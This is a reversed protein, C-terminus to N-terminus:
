QLQFQPLKEYAILRPVREFMMKIDSMINNSIQEMDLQSDNTEPRTERHDENKYLGWYEIERDVQRKTYEDQVEIPKLDNRLYDIIVEFYKPNRDIFVRSKIMKLSKKDQFMRALSSDPVKCLVELSVSM